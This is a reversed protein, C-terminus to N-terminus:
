CYTSFIRIKLKISINQNKEIFSDTTLDFKTGTKIAENANKLM